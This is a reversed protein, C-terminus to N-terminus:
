QADPLFIIPNDSRSTTTTNVANTNTTTSNSSNSSNTISPAVISTIAWFPAVATIVGGLTRITQIYADNANTHRSRDRPDTYALRGFQCGSEPCEIVLTPKDQQHLQADYQNTACGTLMLLFAIILVIPM